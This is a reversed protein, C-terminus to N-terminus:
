IEFSEKKRTKYTCKRHDTFNTDEVYIYPLTSAHSVASM